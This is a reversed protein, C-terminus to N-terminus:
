QEISYPKTEKEERNVFGNERYFKLEKISERIDDLARHKMAKTPQRAATVPLWRWMLEKVSSVDIIRYHLHSNFEPMERAIFQRDVYVTNGCLPSKGKITWRRVLQLIHQEVQQTTFKSSRVQPFLTSHFQNKVWDNAKDLVSEDHHIVYSPTEDLINLNSDTVVAAIEIIKNSSELGTMECDVWILHLPDITPTSASASDTASAASASVSAASPPVTHQLAQQDAVTLPTQILQMQEEAVPKVIADPPPLPTPQSPHAVNPNEPEVLNSHLVSSASTSMNFRVPIPASISTTRTAKGVDTLAALAHMHRSAVQQAAKFELLRFQFMAPKAARSELFSTARQRIPNEPTDSYFALRM